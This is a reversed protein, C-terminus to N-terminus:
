LEENLASIMTITRVRYCVVREYKFTTRSGAVVRERQLALIQIGLWVTSYINKVSHFPSPCFLDQGLGPENM